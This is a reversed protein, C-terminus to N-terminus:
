PNNGYAAKWNPLTISLLDDIQQIFQACQMMSQEITTQLMAATQHSLLLTKVRNHATTKAHDDQFVDVCVMMATADLHLDTVERFFEKKMVELEKVFHLLEARTKKLMGEYFTPPKATFRDLFSPRKTSAEKTRMLWGAADIRNIESAIHAKRKSTDQLPALNRNGWDLIDTVSMHLITDIRGRLRHPPITPELQTAKEILLDTKTKPRERRQPRPPDTFEPVNLQRPIPSASVDPACSIDLRARPAECIPLPRAPTTTNIPLPKARSTAPPPVADEEQPLNLPKPKREGV